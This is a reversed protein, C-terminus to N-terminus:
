FAEATELERGSVDTIRENVTKSNPFQKKIESVTEDEGNEADIRKQLDTEYSLFLEDLQALFAPNWGNKKAEAFYSDKLEHFQGFTFVDNMANAIEGSVREWEGGKKLQASSKRLEVYRGLEKDFSLGLADARGAVMLAVDRGAAKARTLLVNIGEADTVTPLHSAFWEVEAKHAVQDESLSNLKEKITAVIASLCTAYEAADAAPIPMEVIGAPDKGFASETPSFILYRQKNIISIRAIVDSDTLVLDKSGGSIKLREKIVDGDKQEDMHAILVVDKGFGRLMKLFASFRVGLQGWGQQSLAGGHSLKSNSRIIDQALTDLAKGVTDIIITDYGAVDAASIAAVDRWDSVQVTDKRDVARHAGKDFDLLLPRSATFALSTKGLGPQSYITVCLTEVKIPENSHTVKIPM